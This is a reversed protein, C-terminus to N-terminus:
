FGGTPAALGDMLPLPFEPSPTRDRALIAQMREVIEPHERAVDRTEREDTELDYLEFPRAGLLLERRIGKWRGLRVAQQGGYGHFEWLLYEHEPQGPEGLLERLFSTGDIGAPVSAGALELLTPLLDHFAALHESTRGAPVCGPWRAILPVRIGGEYLEGKRGRLGATSDFFGTDAGGWDNTPGNDSTFLVLTEKELGLERLLDLIRGVDRDLRGIMAAYAARPTSHPLYDQSGDYPREEFRGRYRSLDEEEPQLALHPLTLPAYLFFREGRRRRLFRELEELILDPAYTAGTTCGEPNGPLEVRQGDRWLHDPYYSQAQRQCLYGFWADFGQANPEGSTGPGGLGWKGFIGTAYGARKLLEPLTLTDAPIPLQGYPLELNDRIFAHGGHLGTLLSCRAPACVPASSYFRTFRTGERALEDLRPTEIKRQGYRGLEGYGLDDAVILVINAPRAEKAQAQLPAACASGLLAATALVRQCRTSMRPFRPPYGSTWRYPM